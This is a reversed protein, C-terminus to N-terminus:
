KVFVCLEILPTGRFVGCAVHYANRSWIVCRALPLLKEKGVIVIYM